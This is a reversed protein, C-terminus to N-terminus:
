LSVLILLSLLGRGLVIYVFWLLFCHCISLRSSVIKLPVTPLNLLSSWLHLRTLPWEHRLSRWTVSSGKCWRYGQLELFSMLERTSVHTSGNTQETTLTKYPPYTSMRGLGKPFTVCWIPVHGRRKRLVPFPTTRQSHGPHNGLSGEVRPRQKRWM